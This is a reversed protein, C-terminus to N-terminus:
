FSRGHRRRARNGIVEPVLTVDAATRVDGEVVRFAVATGRCRGVPRAGPAFEEGQVHLREGDDAEILGLNKDDNFWLMMGRM